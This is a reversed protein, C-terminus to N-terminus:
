NKFWQLFSGTKKRAAPPYLLGEKKGGFEKCIDGPLRAVQLALEYQSRYRPRRACKYHRVLYATYELTKNQRKAIEALM